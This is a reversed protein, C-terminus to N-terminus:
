SRAGVIVDQAGTVYVGNQTVGHFVIAWHGERSFQVPIVYHGPDASAKLIVHENQMQAVPSMPTPPVRVPGLSPDWWSVFVEGHHIATLNGAADTVHVLVQAAGVRAPSAKVLVTYNQNFWQASGSCGVIAAPLFLSMAIMVANRLRM